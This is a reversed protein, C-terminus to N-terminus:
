PIKYGVLLIMDDLLPIIDKLQPSGSSTATLTLTWRSNNLTQKVDVLNLLTMYNGILWMKMNANQGFTISPCQDTPPTLALSIGTVQTDSNNLKILANVKSVKVSPQMAVLYPFHERRISIETAYSNSTKLKSWETPYDNRLSIMHLLGHNSQSFEHLANLGASVKQKAATALGEGGDRATYRVHLLLDSITNYDFSRFEKPLTFRWTSIAGAGEFPLYREDRFNLEFLGGDNQATSTAISQIPLYNTRFNEEADYSSGSVISKERVKCSLLTLTGSVSTYPGVVCPVSVSVSKIRRFYHGPFDLDFLVEPIVFECTGDRRLAMLQEADLQRLSIHKTIELERKNRDLYASEMRRLDQSLRDGSLLGKRLSDWHGYRIYNGTEDGLEYHFAREARKALEYAMQYASFYLGSLQSEMWMYLSEGTFKLHRMYEDINRAFEIQKQHNALDKEAIAKRIGLALLQKDIQCIEEATMKSQQVWDDRRRQWGALLGSRKDQYAANTALMGLADSAATVAFGLAEAPGKAVPWVGAAHLAGALVKVGSSALAWGNAAEM